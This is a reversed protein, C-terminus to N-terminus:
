IAQDIANDKAEGMEGMKVLLLALHARVEEVDMAKKYGLAADHAKTHMTLQTDERKTADRMEIDHAKATMRMHERKTEGEERTQLRQMEGQEEMQKIDSRYKIIQEQAQLQQQAQQLQHQMQKMQMQIAPPVDSKEDIQSLPNQAALRDAIIDAGPFDMNRVILDGAIEVIKPEASALGMMAEVAEARKSNYGPGVDMVIDYTGVTVDNLVAKVAQATLDNPAAPNAQAEPNQQNITVLNPKGDDGIIRMVRETDYVAPVLDLIMRGVHKMSRTLNDYLHFNSQESQGQEARIARGSKPAAGINTEPDFIGLVMQLDSSIASAMAMAGSPPPEPQMRTPPPAPMDASDTQKYRLVPTASTNARAWENAHGEDQGEAMIWKAKPAMAVTETMNTIWFNYAMQPDRSFHTLGFKRRKGDIIAQDGYVPVVPIWRGAWQKTELVDFASCKYWNIAKRFSDRNGVVEIGHQRLLEIPPMKDQWVVSKDSLMVLKQKHKDVTFYEAIRMDEKTIWEATLDGTGRTQFSAVEAGPYLKKFNDKTMMDTVLCKESDSGDPLVSNPDFYVTFPNEVMDIYIDQDFSDERVYDHRLRLYGWGIRAAFNFATDYANDADSNLEIHRILGTLVEAIKPDAISDMPHAKIRPRQQRQSNTVQRIFADLKNITLCPRSELMRMNQVQAPWQEGYSFQLDSLGDARNTNDAETVMQMFAVADKPDFAM